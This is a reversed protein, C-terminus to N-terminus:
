LRGDDVTWRGDDNTRRGDDNAWRRDDKTRRGEDKTGRRRLRYDPRHRPPLVTRHDLGVAGAGPAGVGAVQELLDRAVDAVGAAGLLAADQGADAAREVGRM